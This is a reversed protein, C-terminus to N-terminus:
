LTRYFEIMCKLARPIPLPSSAARQCRGSPFQLTQFYFRRLAPKIRRVCSRPLHPIKRVTALKDDRLLLSNVATWARKGVKTQILQGASPSNDFVTDRKRAQKENTPPSLPVGHSSSPRALDEHDSSPVTIALMLQHSSIAPYRQRYLERPQAISTCNCPRM